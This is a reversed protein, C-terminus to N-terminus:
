TDSLVFPDGVNNINMPNRELTFGQMLFATPIVAPKGMNRINIYSRELNRLGLPNLNQTLQSLCM